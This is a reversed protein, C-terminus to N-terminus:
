TELNAHGQTKMMIIVMQVHLWDSIKMFIITLTESVVIQILVTEENSEIHIASRVNTPAIIKMFLDLVNKRANIISYSITLNVIHANM